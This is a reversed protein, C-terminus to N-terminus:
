AFRTQTTNGQRRPREHVAAYIDDVPCGLREAATLLLTHQEICRLACPIAPYYHSAAKQICGPMHYTIPAVVAEAPHQDEWQTWHDREGRKNTRGRAIEVALAWILTAAEESPPM